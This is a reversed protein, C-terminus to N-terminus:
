NVRGGYIREEYARNLVENMNKNIEEEVKERPINFANVYLNIYNEKEIGSMFAFFNKGYRQELENRYKKFKQQIEGQKLYDEDSKIKLNEEKYKDEISRNIRSEVESRTGGYTEIYLKIYNEKEVTNMRGMWLIGYKQKLNNMYTMFSQLSDYQNDLSYDNVNKNKLEPNSRNLNDSISKLAKVIKKLEDITQDKNDLIRALDASIFSAEESDKSIEYRANIQASLESSKKEICENLLEILSTISINQKANNESNNIANLVREKNLSNENQFASLSM